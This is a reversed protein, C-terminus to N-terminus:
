PITEEEDDDDDDDHDDDAAAAAAIDDSEREVKWNVAQHTRKKWIVNKETM